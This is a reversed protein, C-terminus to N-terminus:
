FIMGSRKKGTYTESMKEQKNQMKRAQEGMPCKFNQISWSNNIKKM